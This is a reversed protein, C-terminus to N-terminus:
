RTIEKMRTAESELLFRYKTKHGKKEFFATLEEWCERPMPVYNPKYDTTLQKQQSPRTERYELWASKIEGITPPFVRGPMSICTDIAIKIEAPDCDRLFEYYLQTTM